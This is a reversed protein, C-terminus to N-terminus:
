ATSEARLSLEAGEPAPARNPTKEVAQARATKAFVMVALAPSERAFDDLTFLGALQGKDVVLLVRTGSDVMKSAAHWVDDDPSVAPQSHTMLSSAPAAGCKDASRAISQLLERDTIVGLPRGSECVPIVSSGTEVMKRAVKTIPDGPAVSNVSLKVMDRVRTM